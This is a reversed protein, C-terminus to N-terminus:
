FLLTFGLKANPAWGHFNPDGVVLTTGSNNNSNIAGQVNHAGGDLYSMGALLMFRFGDRSGLALGGQLDLYNFDVTPNGSVGPATIPFQHGVDVNLVPAIPFKIADVLINGRVGPALAYTGSVGVKFWPLYPLRADLGLAAGSPASLDFNMGLNFSNEDASAVGVCTMTAVAVMAGVLHHKRM